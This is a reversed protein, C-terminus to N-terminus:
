ASQWDHKARTFEESAFELSVVPGGERHTGDPFTAEWMWGMAASDYWSEIDADPCRPDIYKYRLEGIPLWNRGRTLEVRDITRKVKDRKAYRMQDLARGRTDPTTIVKVGPTAALGELSLRCTRCTELRRPAEPHTIMFAAGEITEACWECPRAIWRGPEAPEYEAVHWGRRPLHKRRWAALGEPTEMNLPPRIAEIVVSYGRDEGEPEPATEEPGTM